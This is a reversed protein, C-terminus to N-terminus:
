SVGARALAREARRLQARLERIERQQARITDAYIKAQWAVLDAAATGRRRTRTPLGLAQLIQRVRERSLGFAAAMESATVHPDRERWQSIMERHDTPQQAM